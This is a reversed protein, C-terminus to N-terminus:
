VENQVETVRQKLDISKSKKAYEIGEINWCNQAEPVQVNYVQYEQSKM